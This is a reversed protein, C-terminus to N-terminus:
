PSEGLHAQLRTVADDWQASLSVLYARAAGLQDPRCAFSRERGARASRVLGARELVALHKTVAQRTVKAEASLAAISRPGERSLRTLLALRTPEGLAAFLAAPAAATETSM